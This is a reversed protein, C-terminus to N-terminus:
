ACTRCRAHHDFPHGLVAQLGALAGACPTGGKVKILGSYALCRRRVADWRRGGGSQFVFFALLKYDFAFVFRM